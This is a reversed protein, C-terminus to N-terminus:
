VLPFSSLLSNRNDLHDIKSTQMLATATCVPLSHVFYLYKTFLM